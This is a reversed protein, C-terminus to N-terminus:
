KDNLDPPSIGGIKKYFDTINMNSSDSHSILIQNIAALNNEKWFKLFKHVRPIGPLLDETQWVFENVLMPYDPIYYFIDLTILSTKKLIIM